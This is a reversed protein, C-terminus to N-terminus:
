LLIVTFSMATWSPMGTFVTLVELAFAMLNSRASSVLLDAVVGEVIQRMQATLSLRDFGEAPQTM